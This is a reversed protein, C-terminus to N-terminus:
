GFTRLITLALLAMGGFFGLAAIGFGWSLVSVESDSLKGHSASIALITMPILSALIAALFCSVAQFLSKSLSPEKIFKEAIALIVLIAGSSLTTVHKLLEFTQKFSESNTRTQENM